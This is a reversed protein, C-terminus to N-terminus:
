EIFRVKGDASTYIEDISWLHFFAKAPLSASLAAVLAFAIRFAALRM